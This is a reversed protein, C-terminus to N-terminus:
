NNLERLWIKVFQLFWEIKKPEGSIEVLLVGDFLGMEKQIDIDINEKFAVKKLSIEINKAMLRGVEVTFRATTTNM